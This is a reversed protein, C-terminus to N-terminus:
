KQFSFLTRCFEASIGYYLLFNKLQEVVENTTSGGLVAIKKSILNKQKSLEQRIKVKKRSIPMLRM